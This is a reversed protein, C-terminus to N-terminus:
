GSILWSKLNLDQWVAVERGDRELIAMSVDGELRYRKGVEVLQGIQREVAVRYAAVDDPIFELAMLHDNAFELRITGSVGMHTCSEANANTHVREIIWPADAPPVTREVETVRWSCNRLSELSKTQEISMGSRLDGGLSASTAPIELTSTPECAVVVILALLDLRSRRM